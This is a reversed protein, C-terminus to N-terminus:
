VASMNALRDLTGIWETGRPGMMGKSPAQDIAQLYGKYSTFIGHQEPQLVVSFQAIKLGRRHYGANQALMCALLLTGRLGEM